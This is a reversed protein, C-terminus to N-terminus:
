LIVGLARALVAATTRRLPFFTQSDLSPHVVHGIDHEFTHQYVSLM